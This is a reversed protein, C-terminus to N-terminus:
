EGLISNLYIWAWDFDNEAEPIEELENIQRQLEGARECIEMAKKLIKIEQPTLEVEREALEPAIGAILKDNIKIKM